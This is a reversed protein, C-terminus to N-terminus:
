IPSMAHAADGVALYGARYWRVLRDSRVSLLKVKDWDDLEAVRDALTPLLEAVSRQFAELGLARVRPDAGKAIVYAIQWYSGRNFTAVFHQASLRLEAGDG